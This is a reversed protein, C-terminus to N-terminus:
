EPRHVNLVPVRATRKVQAPHCRKLTGNELQTWDSLPPSPGVRKCVCEDQLHEGRDESQPKDLVKRIVQQEGVSLWPKLKKEGLEVEM